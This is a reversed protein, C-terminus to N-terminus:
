LLLLLVAMIVNMSPQKKPVNKPMTAILRICNLLILLGDSDYLWSLLEANEGLANSLVMM